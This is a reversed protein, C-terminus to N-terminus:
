CIPWYRDAAVGTRAPSEAVHMAIPRQYKTALDLCAGLTERSTSYPSHPSVGGRPYRELNGAALELRERGREASLGLVEVFPVLDLGSDNGPYDCPPTTIEGALCTGTQVLEDIGRGVAHMRSTVDSSQRTSVVKGIWKPLSIGSEGIPRECDSFELHTHANVLGPFIAVDGLSQAPYPAPTSGMEVVRGGQIRVWGGNIPQSTVPIIWRASLVHSHNSM